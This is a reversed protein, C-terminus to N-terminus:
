PRPSAEPTVWAILASRSRAAHAIRTPSIRPTGVPRRQTNSRTTRDVLSHCDVRSGCRVTGMGTTYRSRRAWRSRNRHDHTDPRKRRPHQRHRIKPAAGQRVPCNTGALCYGSTPGHRPATATRLLRWLTFDHARRGVTSVTCRRHATRACGAASVTRRERLPDLRSRIELRDQHLTQRKRDAVAVRTAQGGCNHATSHRSHPMVAVQGIKM